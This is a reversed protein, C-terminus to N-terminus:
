WYWDGQEANRWEHIGSWPLQVELGAATYQLKSPARVPKPEEPKPFTKALLKSERRLNESTVDSTRAYSWDCDRFRTTIKQLYM